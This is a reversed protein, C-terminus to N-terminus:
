FPLEEASAAEPEKVPAVSHKGHLLCGSADDIDESVRVCTCEPDDDAIIAEYLDKLCNECVGDQHHKSCVPLGCESCDARCNECMMEQCQDPVAGQCRWQDIAFGENEQEVEYQVGCSFCEVSAHMHPPTGWSRTVRQNDM